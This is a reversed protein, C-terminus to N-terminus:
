KELRQALLLCLDDELGREGAFGTAQECLHDAASEIDEPAEALAAALRKPGFMEGKPSTAELLGDTFMLLRDGPAMDIVVEDYTSDPLLGLGVGEIDVPDAVGTASRHLLPPAHGASALALWGSICDLHGCLATIFPAQESHLSALHQNLWALLAGPQGSLDASEALAAEISQSLFVTLMAASVGHGAVDAMLLLLHGPDLALVQYFDGSVRESPLFRAAFRFGATTPLHHPLLHRQIRAATVLDQEMQDSHRKIVTNAEALERVTRELERARQVLQERHQANERRLRGIEAARALTTSLRHTDLIPKTLFDHAGLRLASVADDRSGHGTLVVKILEPALANSERILDLGGMGPMVLDTLLVDYEEDGALLRLAEEGSAASTVRLGSRRMLRSLADRVQDEDDVLLIHHPKGESVSEM